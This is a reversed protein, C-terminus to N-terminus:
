QLGTNIQGASSITITGGYLCSCQCSDDLASLSGITVAMSGPTWPAPIAPTCPQPSSTAAVAPNNPSQCLGFMPVNAAQADDIVGTGAPAVENLASATFSTPPAAWVCQLAGGSCVLKAM